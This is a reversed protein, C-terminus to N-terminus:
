LPGCWTESCCQKRASIGVSLRNRALLSLDIAIREMVLRITIIEM